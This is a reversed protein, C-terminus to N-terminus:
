LLMTTLKDFWSAPKGAPGGEDKSLSLILVRSASKLLNACFWPTQPFENVWGVWKVATM